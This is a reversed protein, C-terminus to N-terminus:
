SVTSAPAASRSSPFTLMYSHIRSIAKRVASASRFYSEAALPSRAASIRRLEDQVRGSYQALKENFLGVAYEYLRVDYCYRQAIADRIETPVEDKEPRIKTVNFHAYNRIQWGFLIKALALTEDFRETLGILTFYNALNSKALELTEETCDGGLFDYGPDQGALLKTQVNAYPTMEIYKDLTLRKMMRHQPHAVRSLAYYYESIGRDVPDRLVTIYTAKQKLIKHIGFPMHGQIVKLRALRAPSSKQLRRYSWKFFSPDISFVKSPSYEWETLRNLTTGGCKPLHVFIITEPCEVGNMQFGDGGLTASTHYVM